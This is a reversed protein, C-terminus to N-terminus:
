ASEGGEDPRPIMTWQARQDMSIAVGGIREVDPYWEVSAVRIPDETMRRSEPTLNEEANQLLVEPFRNFLRREIEEIAHEYIMTQTGHGVDDEDIACFLGEDSLHLYVPAEILNPEDDEAADVALQHAVMGCHANDTM